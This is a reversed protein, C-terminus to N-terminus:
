TMAITAVLVKRAGSKKLIKSCLNSTEGTTHVDDVILITTNKVEYNDNFKVSSALNQKRLKKSLGTQSKTWKHKILLDPFYPKQLNMALEKALLQPPNYYRYLRKLWHMPVPAILDIDAFDIKYRKALLNSFLKASATKDTYKFAHVIKKSYQDFAFLSLHKDYKPKKAICKGCIIENNPEFEFAFKKGCINCFPKVIFNLEKLCNGCIGNQDQTLCSCSLCRSPFIYNILSKIM